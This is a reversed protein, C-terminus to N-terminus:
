AVFQDHWVQVLVNREIVIRSSFIVSVNQFKDRLRSSRHFESVIQFSSVGIQELLDLGFPLVALFPRLASWGRAFDFCDCNNILNRNPGHHSDKGVPRAFARRNSRFDFQDDLRYFSLRRFSSAM